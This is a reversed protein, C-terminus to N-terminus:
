VFSVRQLRYSSNQGETSLKSELSRVARRGTRLPMGALREAVQLETDKRPSDMVSLIGRWDIQRRSAQSPTFPPPM